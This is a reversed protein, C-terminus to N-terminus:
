RTRMELFDGGKTSGSFETLKFEAASTQFDERTKQGEKQTRSKPIQSRHAHGLIRRRGEQLSFRSNQCLKSNEVAERSLVLPTIERAISNERLESPNQRHFRIPHSSNQSPSELGAKPVAKFFKPDGLAECFEAKSGRSIENGIRSAGYGVSCGSDPISLVPVAVCALLAFQFRSVLFSFHFRSSVLFLHCSSANNVCLIAGACRDDLDIFMHSARRRWSRTSSPAADRSRDAFLLCTQRVLPSHAVLQM